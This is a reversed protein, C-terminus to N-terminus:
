KMKSPYLYAKGRFEHKFDYNLITEDITQRTGRHDFMSDDYSNFGVNMNGNLVIDEGNKLIHAIYLASGLIEAGDLKGIINNLTITIEDDTKEIKAANLMAMDIENEGHLKMLEYANSTPINSYKEVIKVYKKFEETNKILSLIEEM